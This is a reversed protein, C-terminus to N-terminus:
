LYISMLVFGVIAILSVFFCSVITWLKKFSEEKGRIGSLWLAKSCCYTSLLFLVSLIVIKLVEM